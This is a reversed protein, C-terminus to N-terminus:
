RSDKTVEKLLHLVRGMSAPPTAINSYMAQFDNTHRVLVGVFDAALIADLNHMTADLSNIWGQILGNGAKFWGQTRAHGAKAAETDSYLSNMQRKLQTFADISRKFKEADEADGPKSCRVAATAKALYSWADDAGKTHAGSHGSQFSKLCGESCYDSGGWQGERPGGCMTCSSLRPGTHAAETQASSIQYERGIRLPTSYSALSERAERLEPLGLRQPGPHRMLAILKLPWASFYPASFPVYFRKWLKKGREDTDYPAHLADHVRDDLFVGEATDKPHRSTGKKKHILYVPQEFQTTSDAHWASDIWFDLEFLRWDCKASELVAQWVYGPYRHNSAIPTDIVLPLGGETYIARSLFGESFMILGSNRVALLKEYVPLGLEDDHSYLSVLVSPYNSDDRAIESGEYKAHLGALTTFRETEAESPKFATDWAQSGMGTVKLLMTPNAGAALTTPWAFKTVPQDAGKLVATYSTKVLDLLEKFKPAEPLRMADGVPEYTEYGRRVSEVEVQTGDTPDGAQLQDGIRYLTPYVEDTAKFIRTDFPIFYAGYYGPHDEQKASGSFNRLALDNADFRPYDRQVLIGQPLREDRASQHYITWRSKAVDLLGAWAVMAVSQNGYHPYEKDLNDLGHKHGGIKADLKPSLIIVGSNRIVCEATGGWFDVWVSPSADDSKCMPTGMYERYQRRCQEAEQNRKREVGPDTLSIHAPERFELHRLVRQHVSPGHYVSASLADPAEKPLGPVRWLTTATPESALRGPEKAALLKVKEWANTVETPYLDFLSKGQAFEGLDIIEAPESDQAQKLSRPVRYTPRLTRRGSGNSDEAIKQAKMGAPQSDGRPIGVWRKTNESVVLRKENSYIAVIAHAPARYEDKYGSYLRYPADCLIILEQLLSAWFKLSKNVGYPQSLMDVYEGIDGTGGYDALLFHEPVSSAFLKGPYVLIARQNVRMTPGVIEFLSGARPDNVLVQVEDGNRTVTFLPRARLSGHYAEEPMSKRVIYILERQAGLGVIGKPELLETITRWLTAAIWSKEKRLRPVLEVGQPQAAQDM